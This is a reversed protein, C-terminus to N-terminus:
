DAHTEKEQEKANRDSRLMRRCAPILENVLAGADYLNYTKFRVIGDIMSFIILAMKRAPLLDISGDEQGTLVAREFISVLCEYIAELHDRCEPNELAIQYTVHRHLLLIQNELKGALYLYFYISNELLEMGNSFTKDELFQHFESIILEKTRELVAIFLAEKTKFHYFITGEAVETLQSLEAISTERYGKQAFLFAATQLISEKKTTMNKIM